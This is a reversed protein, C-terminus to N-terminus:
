GAFNSNQKMINLTQEQASKGKKAGKGNIRVLLDSKSMSSPYGVGYIYVKCSTKGDKKSEVIAEIDNISVSIVEKIDIFTAM